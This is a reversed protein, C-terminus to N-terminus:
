GPLLPEFGRPPVQYLLETNQTTSRTRFGTKQLTQKKRNHLIDSRKGPTACEKACEEKPQVAYNVPMDFGETLVRLDEKCFRSYFQLAVQPSHGLIKGILDVKGKLEPYKGSYLDKEARMNNCLMPVYRSRKTKPM